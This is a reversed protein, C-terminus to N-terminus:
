VKPSIIAYDSIKLSEMAAKVLSENDPYERSFGQYDPRFDRDTIDIEGTATSFQCGWKIMRGFVYDCYIEEKNLRQIGRGGPYDESNYACRWVVEESAEGGELRAAQIFGMGTPGRCGKFALFVMRKVVQLVNCSEGLVIKM